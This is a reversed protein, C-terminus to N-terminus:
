NRSKRYDSIADVAFVIGAVLLFALLVFFLGQITVEAAHLAEMFAGGLLEEFSLERM